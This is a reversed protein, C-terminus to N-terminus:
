TTGPASPRARLGAAKITSASNSRAANQASAPLLPRGTYARPRHSGQPQQLVRSDVPVKLVACAPDPALRIRGPGCRPDQATNRHGASAPRRARRHPATRPSRPPSPEFRVPAPSGLRDPSLRLAVAGAQRDGTIELAPVFRLMAPVKHAALARRCADLLSNKVADPADAVAGDAPDTLVVDAVVVAGTIPNRKARVLSMRVRPDANLVAEVEEPYVKLGGVNIVGGMRGRFYYRGELLEVRDGTDVYGDDGVLVPAGRRRSLPRCQPRLPDAPHSGRGEIRHRRPRRRCLGAPIRRPWRERRLGSGSRHFRLRTRYAGASLGCAPQGAPLGPRGSRGIIKVYQPKLIAADGSMLVRRWHSPAHRLYSDSRRGRCAGTPLLGSTGPEGASSLVLPSRSLVARLYIAARRLPPHRLVHEMITQADSPTHAPLAGGLSQLTSFSSRRERRAPREDLDM